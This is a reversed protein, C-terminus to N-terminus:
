SLRDRFRDHLWVVHGEGDRELEEGGEKMYDIILKEQLLPGSIQPPYYFTESIFATGIQTQPITREIKDTCLLIDGGNITLEKHESRATKISLDFSIETDKPGGFLTAVYANYSRLTPDRFKPVPILLKSIGITYRSHLLFLVKGVVTSIFIEKKLFEFTTYGLIGMAERAQLRNLSNMPVEISSCQRIVLVGDERLAQTM